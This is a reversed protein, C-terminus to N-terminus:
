RIERIRIKYDAGECTKEYAIDKGVYALWEDPTFNRTVYSCGDAAFSDALAPRAILKPQTGSSGALITEGEPSFDFAIVIGENDSFTVPPNVLDGTDWLKLTGDNGATAMQPQKGNFRIDNIEGTHARFESLKKRGAIDWLEVMGDDYGVAIQDQDPKFRINRIKKGPSEIRFKGTAQEPNWVLGGGQDNIGALYRNNSSLDISTIQMMDTALDISTRATLDWKLVKGDLAASYLFKGDYSFILSKIKGTHGKLEYFQDSGNAPIMKIVSNLGGCALWDSGPSVAMVDIVENGSYIIRFNQEESGLDGKFIKGGSDSIFFEKKGPVFAVCKVPSGTGTFNRIRSSGKKKALNYLGAYIDADNRSGDNKRNFLYGQYALLAQLEEQEPVQLSRLSMSKAVSIMRLRQTENKLRLVSDASRTALLSLQMASESQRRAEDIEQRGSLIENEANLRLIKEMQERRRAEMAASDSLVSKKLVISAYQDAANKQEAIEERQKEAIRRRNDSSLKSLFAIVTVLAALIAIGGLISSIIRIRSLKWKNHRQKREETERFEKESTRLYVMAREFAPNYKQAWWLSPKNQERWNIALQLDPQKLLGTKGQQYLASAESLRLYMQVSISEEEVWIRLRDWLHILSEHSLDIVSNDDLSVTYHPSLVSISPNRFEEIVKILEDGNCRIASRLTKLDTPYRIGKNDPGKGTILKFLKECIRKVDNDLNEYIEDAHRSIADRMTGISFYDSFDLPRDTEDLKKWHLWTRMLAHQLVPLQDARDNVESILLEVLDSDIDAGANKVPGVIAERINERNMKSVLYNSGNLLKTFNRYHACETILDSRIAIVLFFDPNDHSIANTLLNIFSEESPAATATGKGTSGHSFLEEFQDVFLLIKGDLISSQKRIVEAIGDPEKLLKLITGKLENEPDGGFFNDIFAEALNGFPDNGPRMTLIRWNGKGRATLSRIRPLLGCLVLSSKGSGSAGTVAVFRNSLLKGTIEESENDRGFFYDSEEPVFPRMGPFPNFKEDKLRVPTM